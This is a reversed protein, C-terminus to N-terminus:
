MAGGDDGGLLDPMTPLMPNDNAEEEIRAEENQEIWEEDKGFIEALMKARSWGVGKLTQALTAQEQPNSKPGIDPFDIDLQGDPLTVGGDKAAVVKAIKYVQRETVRWLVRQQRWVTQQRHMKLSLAYGSNADIRGRVVDAWIGYQTLIPRVAQFITELHTQLDAQMDITGVRATPNGLVLWNSPDSALRGIEENETGAIYGQKYSQLHRLHFHDTLMVAADYTADLLGYIDETSFFRMAPFSAHSVAFPICGYKNPYVEGVPKFAVDAYYWEETTWVIYQKSQDDRQPAHLIIADFRTPDTEHCVVTFRDPTVLDFVIHDGSWMPRIALERCLFTYRCAADFFQDLLGDSTYPTLSDSDGDVTRVVPQSYIAGVEDVVWRLLNLATTARGRLKEANQELYRENIKRQLRDRWNHRYVDLLEVSKTRRHKARTHDWAHRLEDPSIIRTNTPQTDQTQM